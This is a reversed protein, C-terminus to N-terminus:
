IRSDLCVIPELGSVIGHLHFYFHNKVWSGKLVSSFEDRITYFLLETKRRLIFNSYKFHKLSKTTAVALPFNFSIKRGTQPLDAIIIINNNNWIQLLMSFTVTMNLLCFTSSPFFHFCNCQNHKHARQTSLWQTCFLLLSPGVVFLLLYQKCFLGFIYRNSARAEQISCNLEFQRELFSFFFSTSKEKCQM